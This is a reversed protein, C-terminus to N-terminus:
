SWEVGLSARTSSMGYQSGLPVQRGQEWRIRCVSMAEIAVLVEPCRVAQLRVDVLLVWITESCIRIPLSVETTASAVVKTRRGDLSAIETLFAVAM